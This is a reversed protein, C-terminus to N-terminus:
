SLTREQISISLMDKYLHIYLPYIDWIKIVWALTINVSHNIIAM